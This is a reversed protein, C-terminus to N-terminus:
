NKEIKAFREFIIESKLNNDRVFEDIAQKVGPAQSLNYDDCLITGNNELILKSYLLDNKVTEYAHGGDLFVYDIQSMDIKKLIQNSNGKILHINKEFKKLLHTVADVSYPDQRLIYEFYIKKLPNNFKTNPIVENVNEVSEGFLDLGVYKFDNGHISYLLECVNRATVGHFVGIELFNKPKKSAIENLFHEGIGEQKLSTKRFYKKYKM